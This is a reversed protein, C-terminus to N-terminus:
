LYLLICEMIDRLYFEIIQNHFKMYLIQMIMRTGALSWSRQQLRHSFAQCEGLAVGFSNHRIEGSCLLDIVDKCDSEAVLHSFSLDYVLQLGYFLAFAKVVDVPWDGRVRHSAYAMVEGQADQFIVGFGIQGESLVGAYTNMKILGEPQWLWKGHSHQAKGMKKAFSAAM